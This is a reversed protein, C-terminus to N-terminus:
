QKVFTHRESYNKDNSLNLIYAGAPLMEVDIRHQYNMAPIHGEQVLIGVQNFIQYDFGQAETTRVLLIDKSPNPYVITTSNNVPTTVVITHSAARAGSLDVQILRYYNAGAIPSKDEYQYHTPETFLGAGNGQIEAITEFTVGDASRELIMYDNDLETETTWNLLNSGAEHKGSFQTLEIPLTAVAGETFNINDFLVKESGSDFDAEIILKVNSGIHASLDIDINTIVGEIVSASPPYIYADADGGGGGGSGGGDTDLVDIITAGGDIELRIYVRDNAGNGTEYSTVDLWLDMQFRPSTTSALSIEDFEVTIMGDSDEIIYAQGTAWSSLDTSAVAGANTHVGIADGDSLGTIGPTGTRSPTYTTTFGIEGGTSTHTVSPEPNPHNDLLHTTSFDPDVYNSTVTGFPEEFGTGVQAHVTSYGLLFLILTYFNTKM